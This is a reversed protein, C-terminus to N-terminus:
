SARRVSARQTWSGVEISCDKQARKGSLLALMQTVAGVGLREPQILMSSLGLQEARKENASNTLAIISLNKPVDVRSTRCLALIAEAQALFSSILTPQQKQKLLDRLFRDLGPTEGLRVFRIDVQKTWRPDIASLSLNLSGDDLSVIRRHGLKVIDNLSARAAADISPRVLPQGILAASRETVAVIPIGAARFRSVTTLKAPPTVCFLGDVRRELFRRTLVDYAKADARATACILSYGAAELAGSMADLLGLGRTSSLESFILGITYSRNSRLARASENVVYGLRAAAKLVKDRNSAAVPVDNLAKSATAISVKAAAAVDHM